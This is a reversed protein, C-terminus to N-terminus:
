ARISQCPPLLEVDSPAVLYCYQPSLTATYAPSCLKGPYAILDPDRIELRLRLPKNMGSAMGQSHELSSRVPGPIVLALALGLHQM